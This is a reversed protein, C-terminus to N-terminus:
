LIGAEGEAGMNPHMKVPQTLHYVGRTELAKTEPPSWRLVFGQQTQNASKFSIEIQSAINDNEKNFKILYAALCGCWM